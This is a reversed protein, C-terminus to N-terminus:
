VRNVLVRRDANPPASTVSASRAQQPRKSVSPFGRQALVMLADAFARRDLRDAEIREVVLQCTDAIQRAAKQLDATSRALSSESHKLGTNIAPLHRTNPEVATTSTATATRADAAAPVDAAGSKPAAARVRVLDAEALDRALFRRGIWLVAVVGVGAAAKLPASWGAVMGDTTGALEYVVVIALIAVPAVLVAKLFRRTSLSM